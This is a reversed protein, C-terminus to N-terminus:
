VTDEDKEGDEGQDILEGSRRAFIAMMGFIKEMDEEAFAETMGQHWKRLTEDILPQLKRGEETLSVLLIRKDKASRQRTVWGNKELSRIVRVTQAEDVGSLESLDHQSLGEYKSLNILFTYESAKIGLPALARGVYKQSCRHVISIYRWIEECHNM